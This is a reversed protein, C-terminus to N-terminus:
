SAGKGTKAAGDPGEHYGSAYYMLPKAKAAAHFDVVEGVLIVHDGAMHRASIRCDFYAICGKLLPAGTAGQKMEAPQIDHRDLAAFRESVAQQDASLVNVAYGSAAAFADYTSSRTELCWLVLPPRLSVSTFSNITIGMAAAGDPACTAVAVGTAYLGLAGRLAREDQTM